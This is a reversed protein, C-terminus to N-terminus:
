ANLLSEPHFGNLNVEDRLKLERKLSRSETEHAPEQAQLVKAVIKACLQADWMGEKRPTRALIKMAMKRLSLNNCKMATYFLPATIGLDTSFNFVKPPTDYTLEGTDVIKCLNIIDYYIDDYARSTDVIMSIMLHFAKLITGGRVIADINPTNKDVKALYEKLKQEWRDLRGMHKDKIVSRLIPIERSPDRDCVIAAGIASLEEHADEITNFSPLPSEPITVQLEKWMSSRYEDSRPNLYLVSVVGLRMLLGAFLSKQANPMSYDSNRVGHFIRLGSRLHVLASQYNGMFSDFCTFLICAMLTIEERHNSTAMSRQLQSIALTHQRLAFQYTASDCQVLQGLQGANFHQHLAGISVLAHRICPEALSLQLIQRQWFDSSFYGSIGKSSFTSFFYLMRTEEPDVAPFPSPAYLVTRAVPALAQTLTSDTSQYGLCARRAKICRQCKPKQEDCKVHRKKCTLCGSRSPTGCVRYIKNRNREPKDM